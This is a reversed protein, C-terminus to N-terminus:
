NNGTADTIPQLFDTATAHLLKDPGRELFRRVTPPADGGNLTNLTKSNEADAHTRRQNHRVYDLWTPVHYREVWLTPDALDRQLAWGNAGDRLRIRRREAIAHLFADENDARIHYEIMVVVPGSRAEVPLATLPERWHGLLDLNSSELDPLPRVFGTAAAILTVGATTMLAIQLGQGEAIWGVLWSGIALGGFAMMQYIALARAVVWRPTALQVIVNFTSLTVLWGVGAVVLALGTLILSGSLGILIAGIALALAGLRVLMESSMRARLRRSGLAGMVAGIGFAGLLVGYGLAGGSILHLAVLPMLAPVGAAGLGFLATRGMVARLPPSMIVYRVGAGMAAGISERPLANELRVPQWKLLVVILGLYSLANALFAAAAGATAVIAGGIAPGVSRAVNFGMSNYAVANPLVARPVMEGVSAQWAPANLATGCGIAFTFGLLLWPTLWGNSAVLALTISVLLMFCQAVIMVLRRDLNDAIAGSWLSLLMIPLTTTSQVLAVLVPSQSLTTMTWSAGVSQILGGFNSFLSAIWVSRFIPIALPSLMTDDHEASDAM